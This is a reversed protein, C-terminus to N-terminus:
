AAFAKELAMLFVDEDQAGSVAFKRDLVFFPVGTIGLRMAEQVDAEVADAYAGSELASTAEGPDLGTEEALKALVSVDGIDAGESFYAKFLREKMADGRGREKAFQALRLADFSNAVVARDFDYVLGAEAGAAALREHMSRTQERSWGKTEALYDNLSKGTGNQIDPNLRFSKWVIEVQDKQPFKGLAGELRRKGLYCFPCLVDSWIEVKM